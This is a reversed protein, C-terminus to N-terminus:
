RSVRAIRVSGQADQQIQRETEVCFRRGCEDVCEDSRADVVAIDDQYARRLRRVVIQLSHQVGCRTHDAACVLEVSAKRPENM